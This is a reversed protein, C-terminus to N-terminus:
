SIRVGSAPPAHRYISDLPTVKLDKYVQRRKAFFQKLFHECVQRCCETSSGLSNTVIAYTKCDDAGSKKTIRVGLLNFVEQLPPLPNRM